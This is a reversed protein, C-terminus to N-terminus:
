HGGPSSSVKHHLVMGAMGGWLNQLTEEGSVLAVGLTVNKDQLHEEVKHKFTGM